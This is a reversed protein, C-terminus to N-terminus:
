FPLDNENFEPVEPKKPPQADEKQKTKLLEVSTVQVENVYITQGNTNQYNRTEWRGQIAIMDGKAAYNALFDAQQGWAVFSIFDVPYQGEADKRDRKVAISNSLVFTGNQTTRLENDKTLNGTLIVLNM